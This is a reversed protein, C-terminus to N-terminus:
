TQNNTLYMNLMNSVLQKDPLNENEYWSLTSIWGLFISFITMFSSTTFYFTM